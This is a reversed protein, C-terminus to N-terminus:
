IPSVAFPNLSRPGWAPAAKAAIKKVAPIPNTIVSKNRMKISSFGSRPRAHFTFPPQHTISHHLSPTISHHLSPTISPQLTPPNTRLRTSAHREAPILRSGDNPGHGTLRLCANWHKTM